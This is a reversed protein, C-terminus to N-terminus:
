ARRMNGEKDAQWFRGTALELATLWGAGYCWTDICKLYGLDLIEGSKQATHGVVAIKGSFHPGPLGRKLSEWLLVDRSQLALPLDARYNAHMFIHRDTEFYTRCAHLFDLHDPRIGAPSAAGYSALTAYGGYILWDPLLDSRGRCIKLMMEDHNGLLPVLHTERALAILADLVACSDPGRDVYDGLMVITDAPQPAVAALVANLAPLCGHIDAIAILRASDMM